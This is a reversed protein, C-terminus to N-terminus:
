HNPVENFEAIPIRVPVLMVAWEARYQTQPKGGNRRFRQLEPLALSANTGLFAFGAVASDARDRARDALLWRFARTCLLAPPLKSAVRNVSRRWGPQEYQIWRVLVPLANTGIHRVASSSAEIADPAYTGRPDNYGKLWKSLPVGNYQPERERERPWFLFGVIMLLAICSAAIPMTRRKNMGHSLLRRHSPFTETLENGFVTSVTSKATTREAVESFRPTLSVSLRSCLKPTRRCVCHSAAKSNAFAAFGACAM